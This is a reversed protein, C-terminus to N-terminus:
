MFKRFFNKIRYPIWSSSFVIQAWIVRNDDMSPWTEVWVMVLPRQNKSKFAMRYQKIAM